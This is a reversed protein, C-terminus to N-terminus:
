PPGFREHVLRGDALRHAVLFAGTSFKGVKLGLERALAPLVPRHSCVVTVKGPKWVREALGRLADPDADYGRESIEPWLHIRRDLLAAYPAVTAACREADSSIIRNAGLAALVGTMRQAVATGDSTLPRLTDKGDWDKRKLAEAHRVVVVTAVVPVAQELADLIDVDRPYSLKGRAKDVPLWSVQDVEDNPEFDSDSVPVASWYHVLKQATGGNKRIAYRQVGLPPGLTVQLGTEEEIERRAGLLVHEHANLKGKPLSWDDYRPRHVLLVQRTGRRERWVVGGAAIVTAPNSM